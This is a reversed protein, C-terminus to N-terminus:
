AETSSRSVVDQKKSSWSIVNRGLYICYGTTSRRDCLDNGWDADCFGTLSLVKNVSFAIEPRTITIYQLAGVISRYKTANEIPDGEDSTLKLSSIMPTPQRRANDMKTKQLLDEIYRRLHGSGKTEFGAPQEMYVKEKLEGNLFANNVDLQRLCWDFSLALTIVVRITTPKVVPSFTENFDFGARQLFGKAFLKAKYKSITGDFNRKVKFVWRNGVAKRDTPLNVLSWTKNEVLANYEEEMANKSRTVTPHIQESTETGTVDNAIPSHVSPPTSDLIQRNSKNTKECFPFIYENFIVHM